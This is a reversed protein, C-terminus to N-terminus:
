MLGNYCVVGQLSKEFTRDSDGLEGTCYITNLRPNKVPAMNFFSVKKEFVMVAINQM